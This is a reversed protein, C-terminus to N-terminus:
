LVELFNSNLDLQVLTIKIESKLNKQNQSDPANKFLVNM